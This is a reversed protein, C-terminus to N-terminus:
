HGYSAPTSHLPLPPSVNYHIGSDKYSDDMPRRTLIPVRVFLPLLMSM